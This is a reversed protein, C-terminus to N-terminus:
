GGGDAKAAAIGRPWPAHAGLLPSATPTQRGRPVGLKKRPGDSHAKATRASIGLAHGVEENSLGEAILEIGERQRTTISSDRSTQMRRVYGRRPRAVM